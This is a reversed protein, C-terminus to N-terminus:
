FPYSLGTKLYVALEKDSLGFSSIGPGILFNYQLKGKGFNRNLGWYIAVGSLLNINQIDAIKNLPHFYTVITSGLFNASNNNILKGKNLRKKISYYYKYSVSLEPRVQAKIDWYGFEVYYMLGMGLSAEVTSISSIPVEKSYSIGSVLLDLNIRNTSEVQGYIFLPLFLVFFIIVNKM